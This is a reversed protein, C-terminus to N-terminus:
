TQLLKLRQLFFTSFNGATVTIHTTIEAYRCLIQVFILTKEEFIHM